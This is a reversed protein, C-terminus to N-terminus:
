IRWPERLARSRMRNAEEDGKFEIKVTDLELPRGLQWAIYAAHCIIHSRAVVEANSHAPKRTKISELFNKVHSVPSTGAEKFQQQEARLRGSSFEIRGSDGTEVWGDDGEYRVCCTGLGMWGTSRMVLKLGDDYTAVCGGETKMDWPGSAVAGLGTPEYLVPLKADNVGAWNCLDVTHAGWELIGGGHFDFCNHWGGDIYSRNYPRWPTPGLWLDWDIDEKSPEPQAPLWDHNTAPHLTNAHVATLKGLKGSRCLDTAFIFNAISRRQTGAQYIVGYRQMTDALAQSEAITMSCPKECYINKGAKAACVSAMTHWRDGTAILVADIDERPLMERFDRYMAVGPGYKAEARQRVAERRDKRVDAIAVFQVVPENFFCGLDESGRNNIGIGALTIRESAAVGGDKGLVPGPIFMPAALVAGAKVATAVFQRRTVTASDHPM